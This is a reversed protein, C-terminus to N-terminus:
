LRTRAVALRVVVIPGDGHSSTGTVDLGGDAVVTGRIRRDSNAVENAPVQLDLVTPRRIDHVLHLPSHVIRM